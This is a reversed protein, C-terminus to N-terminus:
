LQNFKTPIQYTQFSLQNIKIPNISNRLQVSEFQTSKSQNWRFKLAISKFNISNRPFKVQDSLNSLLTLPIGESKISNAYIKTSIEDYIFQFKTFLSGIRTSNRIFVSPAGGTSQILQVNWENEISIPWFQMGVLSFECQFHIEACIQNCNVRIISSNHFFTSKVRRGILKIANVQAVGILWSQNAIFDARPVSRSQAPTPRQSHSLQNFRELERLYPTKRLTGVGTSFLFIFNGGRDLWYGGGWFFILLLYYNIFIPICKLIQNSKFDIWDSNSQIRTINSGIQRFQISITSQNPQIQIIIWLYNGYM